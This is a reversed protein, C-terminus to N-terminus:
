WPVTVANLNFCSCSFKQVYQLKKILNAPLGAFLSNCYYLRSTIFAYILREADPMSLFPRHVFIVVDSNFNYFNREIM